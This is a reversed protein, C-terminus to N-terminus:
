KVRSPNKSLQKDLEEKVAYVDNAKRHHPQWLRELQLWAELVEKPGCCTGFARLIAIVMRRGIFVGNEVRRELEAPYRSDHYRPVGHTQVEDEDVIAELSDENKNTFLEDMATPKNPTEPEAPGPATDMNDPWLSSFFGSPDHPQMPGELTYEDNIAVSDDAATSKDPDEPKAPDPASETDDLPRSAYFGGPDDRQVFGPTVEADPSPLPVYFGKPDETPMDPQVDTIISSLPNEWVMDMSENGQYMDHLRTKSDRLARLYAHWTLRLREASWSKRKDGHIGFGEFLLMYVIHRPPVTYTTEMDRLVTMFM